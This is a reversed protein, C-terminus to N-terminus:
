DKWYNEDFVFGYRECLIKALREYDDSETYDWGDPIEMTESDTEEDGDEDAFTITVKLYECPVDDWNGEATWGKKVSSYTTCSLRYDSTDFKEAIEWFDVDERQVFYGDVYEFAERAIEEADYDSAFDGLAPIVEYNIADDITTCKIAKM